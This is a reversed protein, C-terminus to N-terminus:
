SIRHQDAQKVDPLPERITDIPQSAQRGRLRLLPLLEEAHRLLRDHLLAADGVHPLAQLTTLLNESPYSGGRVGMMSGVAKLWIFDLM